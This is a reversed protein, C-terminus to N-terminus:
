SHNKFPLNYIDYPIVRVIKPGTVVEPFLIRSAASLLLDPLPQM